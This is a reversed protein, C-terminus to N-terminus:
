LIRHTADYELIKLYTHNKYRIHVMEDYQSDFVINKLLNQLALQRFEKDKYLQELYDLLDGLCLFGQVRWQQPACGLRCYTDVHIFNKLLVKEDTGLSHMFYDISSNNWNNEKDIVRIRDTSEEHTEKDCKKILGLEYEIETETM